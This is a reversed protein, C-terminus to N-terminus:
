KGDATIESQVPTSIVREVKFTGSDKMEQLQANIQTRLKDYPKASFMRRGLTKYCNTFM